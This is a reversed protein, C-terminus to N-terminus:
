EKENGMEGVSEGNRKKRKRKKSASHHDNSLHAELTIFAKTYVRGERQEGWRGKM